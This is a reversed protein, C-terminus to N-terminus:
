PGANTRKLKQQGDHEHTHWELDVNKQVARIRGDDGEVYEVAVAKVPMCIASSSLSSLSIRSDFVDRSSIVFSLGYEKLSPGSEPTFSRRHNGPEIFVFRIWDPRFAVRHRDTGSLRFLRDQSYANGFMKRTQSISERLYFRRIAHIDSEDPVEHLVLGYEAFEDLTHYRNIYDPLKFDGDNVYWLDYPLPNHEWLKPIAIWAFLGLLFLSLVILGILQRDIHGYSKM